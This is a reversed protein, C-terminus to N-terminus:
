TQRSRFTSHETLFILKGSQELNPKRQRVSNLTQWSSILVFCLYYHEYVYIAQFANSRRIPRIALFTTRTHSSLLWQFTTSITQTKKFFSQTMSDKCFLRPLSGCFNSALLFCKRKVFSRFVSEHLLLMTGSWLRWEWSVHKREKCEIFSPSINENHLSLWHVFSFRLMIFIVWLVYFLCSLCSFTKRSEGQLCKDHDRPSFWIHLRIM